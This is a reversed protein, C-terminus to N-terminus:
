FIGLWGLVYKCVNEVFGSLELVQIRLPVAFRARLYVLAAPWPLFPNRSMRGSSLRWAVKSNKSDHIM